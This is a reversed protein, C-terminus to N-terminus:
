RPSRDETARPHWRATLPVPRGVAFGWRAAVMLLSRPDSAISADPGAADTCPVVGEMGPHMEEARSGGVNAFVAVKGGM